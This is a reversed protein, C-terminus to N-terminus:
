LVTQQPEKPNGKTQIPVGMTQPTTPHRQLRSSRGSASSSVRPDRWCMVLQCRSLDHWSLATSWRINRAVVVSRQFPRALRSCHTTRVAFSCPFCSEPSPAWSSDSLPFQQCDSTIPWVSLSVVLWDVSWASCVELGSCFFQDIGAMRWSRKCRVVTYSWDKTACGPLSACGNIVPLTETWNAPRPTCYGISSEISNIEFLISWSLNYM